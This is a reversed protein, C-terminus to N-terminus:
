STLLCDQGGLNIKEAWIQNIQREPAADQGRVRGACWGTARSVVSWSERAAPDRWLGPRTGAPRDSGQPLGMVSSPKTSRSLAAEELTAISM